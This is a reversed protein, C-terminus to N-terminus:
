EIIMVHPYLIKLCGGEIPIRTWAALPPAVYCVDKVNGVHTDVYINTEELEITLSVLERPVIEVLSVDM